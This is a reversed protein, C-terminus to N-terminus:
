KKSLKTRYHTFRVRIYKKSRYVTWRSVGDIKSLEEATYSNIEM